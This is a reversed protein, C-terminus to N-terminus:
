QMCQENGGLNNPESDAEKDWNTYDLDEEDVWTWAKDAPYGQQRGGLWLYEDFIDKTDTVSAKSLDAIM